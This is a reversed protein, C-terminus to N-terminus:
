RYGGGRGRESNGDCSLSRQDQRCIESCQVSRLLQFIRISCIYDKSEHPPIQICDAFNIFNGETAFKNKYFIVVVWDKLATVPMVIDSIVEGFRQMKESQKKPDSIKHLEVM